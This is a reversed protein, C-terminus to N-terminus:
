VHTEHVKENYMRSMCKNNPLLCAIDVHLCKDGLCTVLYDTECDDQM